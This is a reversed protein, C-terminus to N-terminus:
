LAEKEHSKSVADDSGKSFGGRRNEDSGDTMGHGVATVDASVGGSISVCAARKGSRREAKREGNRLHVAAM